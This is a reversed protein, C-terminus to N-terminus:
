LRKGIYCVYGYYRKYKAYVEAEVRDRELYERVTESEPYKQLIEKGATERPIFYNMWDQEALAFAAIFAYGARQMAHINTEVSDLSSGAETWLNEVEAPHEAALWSPCTVAVHGGRRLFGRWHTLGKEFGIADIAGESWILDFRELAFSLNAMNGVIGNVRENLNLMAANGNLVDIFSSCIDVGVISGPIKEALVTTQGGTGCALDAVYTIEDLNEIFGLAKLTTERSGPGQRELGVHTEILLDDLTPQKNDM